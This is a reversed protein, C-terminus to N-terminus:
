IEWLLAQLGKLRPTLHFGKIQLNWFQGQIYSKSKFQRLYELYVSGLKFCLFHWFSDTASKINSINYGHKRSNLRHSSGNNQGILPGTIKVLLLSRAQVEHM